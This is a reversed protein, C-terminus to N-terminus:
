PPLLMPARPLTEERDPRVPEARPSGPHFSAPRARHAQRLHLAASAARSSRARLSLDCLRFPPLLSTSSRVTRLASFREILHGTKRSDRLDEGSISRRVAWSHP